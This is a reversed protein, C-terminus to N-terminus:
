VSRYGAIQRFAPNFQVSSRKYSETVPTLQDVSVEARQNRGGPGPISVTAKSGDPSFAMITGIRVENTTPGSRNCKRRVVVQQQVSLEAM